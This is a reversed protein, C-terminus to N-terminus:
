RHAPYLNVVPFKGPAPLYLQLAVGVGDCLIKSMLQRRKELLCLGRRLIQPCLHAQHLIDVREIVYQHAQSQRRIQCFLFGVRRREVVSELLQLGRALCGCALQQLGSRGLILLDNMQPRLERFAVRALINGAATRFCNNDVITDDM